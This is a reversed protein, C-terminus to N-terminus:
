NSANEGWVKFYTIDKCIQFSIDTRCGTTIIGPLDTFAWILGPLPPSHTTDPSVLSQCTHLRFIDFIMMMVMVAVIKPPAGAM